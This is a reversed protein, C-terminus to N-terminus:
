TRMIRLTSCKCVACVLILRGFHPTEDPDSSNAVIFVSRIITSSLVFPFIFVFSSLKKLPVSRTKDNILICICGYDQHFHLIDKGSFEMSRKIYFQFETLFVGKGFGFKFVITEFLCWLVMM